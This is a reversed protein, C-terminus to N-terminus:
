DDEKKIEKIKATIIRNFEELENVSLNDMESFYSAFGAVSGNFFRGILRNFHGKFYDQKSILPYYQHVRSFTHYGVFEKEVLKKIVTSITTYAPKPTPFAAVIDKMVAQKLKWLVQM